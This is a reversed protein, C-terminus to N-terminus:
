LTHSKATSNPFLMIYHFYIEEYSSNMGIFIILREMKRLAQVAWCCIGNQTNLKPICLYLKNKM